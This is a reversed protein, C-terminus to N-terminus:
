RTRPVSSYSAPSTARPPSRLPRWSSTTGAAWPVSDDANDRDARTKALGRFIDSIVPSIFGDVAGPVFHVHSPVDAGHKKLKGEAAKQAAGGEGAAAADRYTECTAAAAVFDIWLTKSGAKGYWHDPVLGLNCARTARAAAPNGKETFSSVGSAKACHQGTDRLANHHMTWLSDGDAHFGGSAFCDGLEDVVIAAGSSTRGASTRGVIASLCSLPQRLYLQMRARTEDDTLQQPFGGAVSFRM